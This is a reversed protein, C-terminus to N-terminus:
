TISYTNGQLDSLIRVTRAIRALCCLVHCSFPEMLYILNIAFVQYMVVSRDVRQKTLCRASPCNSTRLLCVSYTSATAQCSDTSRANISLMPVFFLPPSPYGHLTESGIMHLLTANVLPIISSMHLADSRFLAHMCANAREDCLAYSEWM